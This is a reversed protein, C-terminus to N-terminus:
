PTTEDCQTEDPIAVSVTEPSLAYAGPAFLGIFPILIIVGGIIDLIGTTSLERYITAVGSSGKCKALVSHANKRSLDVSQVGKGRPVGDVLIQANPNSPVITIPQTSPGALSCSVTALAVAPILVLAVLRDM